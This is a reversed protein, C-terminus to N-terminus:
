VHSMVLRQCDGVLGERWACWKWLNPLMNTCGNGGRFAQEVADNRCRSSFAEDSVYFNRGSYHGGLDRIIHLQLKMYEPDPLDNNLYFYKRRRRPM